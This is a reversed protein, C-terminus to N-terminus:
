SENRPGTADDVVKLEWAPKQSSREVEVARWSYDRGKEDGQTFPWDCSLVNGTPLLDADGYVLAHSGTEGIRWSWKMAATGAAEDVVIETVRSTASAYTFTGDAVFAQWDACCRVATAERGNVGM